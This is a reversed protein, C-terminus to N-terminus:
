VKVYMLFAEYMQISLVTDVRLENPFQLDYIVSLAAINFIPLLISSTKTGYHARWLIEFM